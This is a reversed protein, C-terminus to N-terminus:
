RSQERSLHSRDRRRARLVLLLVSRSGDRSDVLATLLDTYDRVSLFQVKLPELPQVPLQSSRSLVSLVLDVRRDRPQVEDSRAEVLADVRLWPRTVVVDREDRLASVPVVSLDSHWHLFEFLLCQMEFWLDRM